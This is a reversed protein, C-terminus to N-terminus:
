IKNLEDYRTKNKLLKLYRQPANGFMAFALDNKSLTTM